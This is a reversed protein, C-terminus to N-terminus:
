GWFLGESWAASGRETLIASARDEGVPNAKPRAELRRRERRHDSEGDAERLFKIAARPGLRTDEATYVVGMGGGGLTELIRYHSFSQGALM